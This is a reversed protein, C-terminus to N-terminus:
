TSCALSLAVVGYVLAAFWSQSFARILLFFVPAWFSFLGIRLIPDALFMAVSIMSFVIVLGWGLNMKM